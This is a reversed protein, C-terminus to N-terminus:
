GFGYPLNPSSVVREGVAEGKLFRLCAGLVRPDSLIRQHGLGTTTLLRAGPWCRAYREGESWPVEADEMDHVVLAPRGIRPVFRHAQLDDLAVGTRRELLAMMRRRLSGGIGCRSAFRIAAEEPDARPALLIAQDAKMGRNLAVAAAAAGMGHGIVAAAPGLRWGVALLNCVFDPLTAMRGSSRGHAQQDFAVVAYGDARLARVLSRQGLAHDSWDHALLVYPQTAPDGWAYVALEHDDIQLTSWSAGDGIRRDDTSPARTAVPTCFMDLAVHAARQPSIMALARLRMRAKARSWASASGPIEPPMTGTPGASARPPAELLHRRPRERDSTPISPLFPLFPLSNIPNSQRQPRTLTNNKQM